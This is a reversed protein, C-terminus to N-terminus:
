DNQGFGYIRKIEDIAQKSTLEREFYRKTVSKSEKSVYLKEVALTADVCDSVIKFEDEKNNTCYDLFKEVAKDTDTKQKKCSYERELLEIYLTQCKKCSYDKPCDLQICGYVVDCVCGDKNNILLDKLQEYLKTYDMKEHNQEAKAVESRETSGEEIEKSCRTVPGNRELDMSQGKECIELIKSVMLEKKMSMKM